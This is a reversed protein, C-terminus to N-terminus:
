NNAVIHFARAMRERDHLYISNFSQMWKYFKEVKSQDTKM